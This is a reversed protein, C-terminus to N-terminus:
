AGRDDDQVSCGPTPLCIHVALFAAKRNDPKDASFCSRVRGRNHSANTHMGQQAWALMNIEAPHPHCHLSSAYRVLFQHLLESINPSCTQGWRGGWGGGRKEGQTMMGM